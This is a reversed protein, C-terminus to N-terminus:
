NPRCLQCSNAPTQVYSASIILLWPYGLTTQLHGAPQEQPILSLSIKPPATSLNLCVPLEASGLLLEIPDECLVVPLPKFMPVSQWSAPSVLPHGTLLRSLKAENAALSNALAQISIPLPWGPTAFAAPSSCVCQELTGLHRNIPLGMGLVQSM